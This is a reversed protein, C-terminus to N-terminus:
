AKDRKNAVTIKIKNFNRRTICIYQPSKPKIRNFEIIEFSAKLLLQKMENSTFSNLKPTLGIFSFLKLIKNLFPAESM